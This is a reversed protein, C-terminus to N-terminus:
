VFSQIKGRSGIFLGKQFLHFTVDQVPRLQHASILSSVYNDVVNYKSLSVSIGNDPFNLAVEVKAQVQVQVQILDPSPFIM